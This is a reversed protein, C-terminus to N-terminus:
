HKNHTKCCLARTCGRGSDFPSALLVSSHACLCQAKLQSELPLRDRQVFRVVFKMFRFNRGAVVYAGVATALLRYLTWMVGCSVVHVVDVVGCM